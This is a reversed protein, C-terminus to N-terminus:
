AALKKAFAPIAAQEVVFRILMGDFAELMINLKIADDAKQVLSYKDDAWTWADMLMGRIEEESPQAPLEKITEAVAGALLKLTDVVEIISLKGDSFIAEIQSSAAELREILTM